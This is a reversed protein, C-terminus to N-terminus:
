SIGWRYYGRANAMIPNSVKRIDDPPFRKRLAEEFLGLGGGTLLVNDFTSSRIRNMFGDVMEDVLEKARVHFPQMDVSGLGVVSLQQRSLCMEATRYDIYTGLAKTMYDALAYVISTVGGPIAGSEDYVPKTGRSAYWDFTRAGPDITLNNRDDQIERSRDQGEDVSWAILSGVPQPLINVEEVRVTVERGYTGQLSSPVPVTLAKHQYQDLLQDRHIKFTSVPLGLVLVPITRRLVGTKRFMYYLGGIVQAKYEPRNCFDDAVMPELTHLHTDPGVLYTQGDVTVRVEDLTHEKRNLRHSDGRHAAGESKTRAPYMLEGDGWCTKLNGFGVDMGVAFRAGNHTSM